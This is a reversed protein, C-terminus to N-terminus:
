NSKTASNKQQELVSINSQMPQKLNLSQLSETAQKAALEQQACNITGVTQGAQLVTGEEINLSEVKGATEAAM